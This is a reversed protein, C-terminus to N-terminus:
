LGVRVGLRVLLLHTESEFPSIAIQPNPLDQIRDPRLYRARGGRYYQAGVDIAVKTAREEYFPLYLGGGLVWAATWDSQNTTNAFDLDSGETSTVTSFYQAGVGANVYPRFKGRPWALQPGISMPVIQNATRIEVQIPGEITYSLPGSFSEEGYDLFGLDARLHVFGSGDLRLQYSGDVGYGFGINEGLAGLPRSQVFSITGSSRLALESHAQEPRRFCVCASSDQAQATSLAVATILSAVGLRFALM